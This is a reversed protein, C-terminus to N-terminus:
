RPEPFRQHYSPEFAAVDTFPAGQSLLLCASFGVFRASLRNLGSVGLAHNTFTEASPGVVLDASTLMASVHSESVLEIPQQRQGAPSYTAVYWLNRHSPIVTVIRAVNGVAAVPASALALADTTGVALFQRDSAFCLGKAMAAGIRLGTFSGPGASLAVVNIAALALGAHTLASEITTTLLEDHVNGLCSEVVSLMRGVGNAHSFISAGCTAGSTEIALINM